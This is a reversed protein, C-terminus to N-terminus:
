SLRTSRNISWDGLELIEESRSPSESILLKFWPSDEQKSCVEELSSIEAEVSTIECGAGM